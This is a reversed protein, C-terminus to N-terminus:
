LITRRLIVLARWAAQKVTPDGRAALPTPLSLAPRQVGDPSPIDLWAPARGRVIRPSGAELLARGPLRGLLVLREPAVLTILRRLFPLCTAIESGTPPRDGPPRWPILPTLMVERRSLGISALMRDLFAGAAGAFPRGARDDDASPAEGILIVRADAPGEAFVLNSATDRLACGDFTTLAARLADLSTAAQAITEASAAPSPPVAAVAARPVLVRPPETQQLRPLSSPPPVVSRDALRDLAAEALTEDAGWELMLRLAALEESETM